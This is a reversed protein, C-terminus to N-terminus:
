NTSGFFCCCILLVFVLIISRLQLLMQQRVPFFFSFRTELYWAYTLQTQKQLKMNSATTSSAHSMVHLSGLARVCPPPPTFPLNTASHMTLVEALIDLNSGQDFPRETHLKCIRGLDAGTEGVVLYCTVRLFSIKIGIHRWRAFYPFLLLRFTANLSDVVLRCWVTWM